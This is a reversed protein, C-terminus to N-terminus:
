GFAQGKGALGIGVPVCAAVFAVDQWGAARRLALGVQGADARLQDTARELVTGPLATVAAYGVFRVLGAGDAMEEDQQDAM